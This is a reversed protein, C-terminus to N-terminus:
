GLHVFHDVIISATWSAAICVCLLLVTSARDAALLRSRRIPNELFHYSIVASVFTGGLELVRWPWTTLPVTLQAPLELWM